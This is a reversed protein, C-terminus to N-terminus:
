KRRTGLLPRVTRPPRLTPDADEANKIEDPESKEM